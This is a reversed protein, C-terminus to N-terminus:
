LRLTVDLGISYGNFSSCWFYGGAVGVSGLGWLKGPLDWTVRGEAQYYFDTALATRLGNFLDTRSVDGGFHVPCYLFCWRTLYDLDMKNAFVKSDSRFSLATTSRSLPMTTFYAYASTFTPTWRGFEKRYRLEFSPVLSITCAEWNVYQGDAVLAQGTPTRAIFTNKTYAFLFDFAPLVSFGSSGFYFRPGGGISLALTEFDSENGSLVNNVFHNEFKAYGAGGEMVPTWTVGSEGLPQPRQLEFKWPIKYIDGSADNLTWGLGSRSAISQTGLVATAEVREGIAQDLQDIVAPPVQGQAAPGAMLILLLLVGAAGPWHGRGHPLLYEGGKM